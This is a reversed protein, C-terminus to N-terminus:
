DLQSPPLSLGSHNRGNRVPSSATFVLLPSAGARWKQLLMVRYILLFFPCLRGPSCPWSFTPELTTLPPPNLFHPSLTVRSLCCCCCVSSPSLLSNWPRTFCCSLGQPPASRWLLAVWHFPVPPLATPHWSPSCCPDCFGKLSPLLGCCLCTVSFGRLHPLLGFGLWVSLPWHCLPWQGTACLHSLLLPAM